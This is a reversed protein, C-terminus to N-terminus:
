KFRRQTSHIMASIGDYQSSGRVSNVKRQPPPFGSFYPIKVARIKIYKKVRLFTHKKCINKELNQFTKM